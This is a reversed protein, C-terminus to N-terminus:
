DPFYVVRDGPKWFDYKGMVSNFLESSIQQQLWRRVERYECDQFWRPEVGAFQRVFPMIAADAITMKEGFLCAHKELRGELLHLFYEANNRHELQTFQPFRDAYKYADLLSKFEEDNQRILEEAGLGDTQWQLPDSKSLAWHMIDLSEEFLTGDALRLVPVTAKPSLNLFEQPMNSLKIERIEVRISSYALALRARIAYPCRRFSYLCHQNM